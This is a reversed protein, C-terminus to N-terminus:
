NPDIGLDIFYMHHATLTLTCPNGCEGNLYFDTDGAAIAAAYVPLTLIYEEGSTLKTTFKNGIMGTESDVGTSFYMGFAEGAAASIQITAVLFGHSEDRRGTFDRNITLMSIDPTDTPVAIAENPDTTSDVNLIMNQLFDYDAATASTVDIHRAAHLHLDTSSSEDSAKIFTVASLLNIVNNPDGALATVAELYTGNPDTVKLTGNLADSDRWLRGEDIAGSDDLDRVDNPDRGLVTPEASEYFVRASGERHRGTEAAPSDTFGEGWSHEVEARERIERKMARLHDDAVSVSDTNAPQSGEYTSDWTTVPATYSAWVQYGGLGVLFALAMYLKRM